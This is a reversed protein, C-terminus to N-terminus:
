IMDNWTMGEYDKERKAGICEVVTDVDHKRNDVKEERASVITDNMSEEWIQRQSLITDHEDERCQEDISLVQIKGKEFDDIAQNEDVAKNFGEGFINRNNSIKTTSNTDHDIPLVKSSQFKRNIFLLKQERTPTDTIHAAAKGSKPSLQRPKHDGLRISYRISENDRQYTTKNRRNSMRSKIEPSIGMASKNQSFNHNYSSPLERSSDTDVNMVSTSETRGLARLITRRIGKRRPLQCSDDTPQQDNHDDHNHNQDDSAISHTFPLVKQLRRPIFNSFISVRDDSPVDDRFIKNYPIM